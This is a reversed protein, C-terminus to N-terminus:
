VVIDFFNRDEFNDPTGSAIAEWINDGDTYWKTVKVSMGPTYPIPDLYTGEYVREEPDPNEDQIFEWIITSGSLVPKLTYGQKEAPRAGVTISNMIQDQLMEKILEDPWESEPIKEYGYSFNYMADETSDLLHTKYGKREPKANLLNMIQQAIDYNTEASDNTIEGYSVGVLYHENDYYKKIM